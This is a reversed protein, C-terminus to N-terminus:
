CANSVRVCHCCELLEVRIDTFGHIFHRVEQVVHIDIRDDLDTATNAELRRERKCFFSKRLKRRSLKKNGSFTKQPFNLIKSTSYAPNRLAPRKRTGANANMGRFRTGAGGAKRRHSMGALM